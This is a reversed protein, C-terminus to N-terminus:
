IGMGVACVTSRIRSVLLQVDETVGSAGRVATCRITSYDSFIALDVDSEKCSTAVNNRQIGCSRRMVVANRPEFEDGGDFRHFNSCKQLLGM